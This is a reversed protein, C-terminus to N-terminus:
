LSVDPLKESIFRIIKSFYGLKRTFQSPSPSPEWGTEM